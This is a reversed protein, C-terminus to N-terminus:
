RSSQNDGGRGAGLAYSATGLLPNNFQSLRTWYWEATPSHSRPLPDAGVEKEGLAREAKAGLARLVADALQVPAGEEAVDPEVPRDRVYPSDPVARRMNPFFASCRTTWAHPISGAVMASMREWTGRPRESEM